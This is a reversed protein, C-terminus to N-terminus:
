PPTLVAELVYVGPATRVAHWGRGISTSALSWLYTRGARELAAQSVGWGATPSAAPSGQEAWGRVQIKWGEITLVPDRLDWSGLTEFPGKELRSARLFETRGNRIAVFESREHLHDQTWPIGELSASGPFNLEMVTSLHSAIEKKVRTVCRLHVTRNEIWLHGSGLFDDNEARISLRGDGSRGTTWPPLSSSRFQFVTWLGDSVSFYDFAPRVFARRGGSEIVVDKAEVRVQIGEQDISNFRPLEPPSLIETERPRTTAPPAWTCTWFIAALGVGVVTGGTLLAPSDPRVRRYALTLLALSAVFGPWFLRSFVTSGAVAIVASSAAWYGGLIGVSIWITGRRNLFLAATGAASVAFLIPAVVQHELFSRSAVEFGRPQAIWYALSAVAHVALAIRIAAM